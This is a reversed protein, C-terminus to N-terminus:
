AERETFLKLHPSLAKKAAELAAQFAVDLIRKLTPVTCSGLELFPKFGPVMDLEIAPSPRGLIQLAAYSGCLHKLDDGLRCRLTESPIETLGVVAYYAADRALRRAESEAQDRLSELRQRVLGRLEPLGHDVLVRELPKGGGGSIDARDGRVFLRGWEVKATLAFSGCRHGHRNGPCIWATVQGFETAVDEGAQDMEGGCTGRMCLPATERESETSPVM